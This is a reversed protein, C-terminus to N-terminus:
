AAANVDTDFGVPLNFAAKIKGVINCQQWGIKPASTIYGYFASKKDLDLPGFCAIGIASIKEVRDLEAIYALVKNLTIEPTETPIVVRQSIEGRPNSVACIFKTGGAEIGIFRTM